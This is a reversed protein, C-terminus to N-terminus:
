KEMQKLVEDPLYNNNNITMVSKLSEEMKKKINRMQKTIRYKDVHGKMLYDDM